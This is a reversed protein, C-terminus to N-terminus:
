TKRTALDWIYGMPDQISSTRDGWFMDEPAELEVAGLELARQHAQDIDEVYLYLKVPMQEVKQTPSKTKSGYAGEIALMLNATQYKLEAFTPTDASEDNVVQHVSFGLGDQYFKVATSIDKVTLMPSLWAFGPHNPSPCNSM